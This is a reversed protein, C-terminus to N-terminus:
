EGVPRYFVLKGGRVDAMRLDTTTVKRVDEFNQHAIVFVGREHVELVIATHKGYTDRRISTATRHELSVNEFQIIDGPLVDQKRWDVVTGFGYFGDWIAGAANLAGAALDWCEGRDVKKGMQSQVYEVIRRNIAPISDRELNGEDRMARQSPALGMVLVSCMLLFLSHKM